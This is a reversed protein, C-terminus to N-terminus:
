GQRKTHLGDQIGIFLGQRYCFTGHTSLGAAFPSKKFNFINQDRHVMSANTPMIVKSKKKIPIASPDTEEKLM